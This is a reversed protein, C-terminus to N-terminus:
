EESKLPKKHKPKRKRKDPIVRVAGPKAANKRAARRALKGADIHIVGNYTSGHNNNIFGM